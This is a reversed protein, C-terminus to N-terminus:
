VKLIIESLASRDDHKPATMNFAPVFAVAVTRNARQAQKVQRNIITAFTM